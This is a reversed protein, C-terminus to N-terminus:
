GEEIVEKPDKDERLGQFSPSLVAVEVICPQYEAEVRVLMTAM